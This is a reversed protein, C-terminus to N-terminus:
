GKGGSRENQHLLGGSDHLSLPKYDVSIHASTSSTMTSSAPVASPPPVISSSPITSPPPVISSPGAEPQGTTLGQRTSVM